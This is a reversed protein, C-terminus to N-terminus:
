FIITFFKLYFWKIKHKLTGKTYQTTTLLKTKLKIYCSKITSYNNENLKKSIRYVM